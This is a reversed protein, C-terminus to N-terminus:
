YVPEEYVHDFECSDLFATIGVEVKDGDRFGSIVKLYIRSDDQKVFEVTDGATFVIQHHNQKVGKKCKYVLVKRYAQM